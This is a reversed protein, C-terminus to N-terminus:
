FFDNIFLKKTKLLNWLIVLFNHPGSVWCYSVFHCAIAFLNTVGPKSPRRMKWEFFTPSGISYELHKGNGHKLLNTKVSFFKLKKTRKLVIIGVKRHLSLLRHVSSAGM